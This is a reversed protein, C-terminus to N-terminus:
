VGSRFKVLFAVGLGLLLLISLGGGGGGTAVSQFVNNTDVSTVSDSNVSTASFDASANIAFSRKSVVFFINDSCRVRFRAAQVNPISTPIVVTALGNNAVRHALQHTFRKGNDVSLDIDVATCSIPALDTNAVEWSIASAVGQRYVAHPTELAFQKAQQMDKHVRIQMADNITVGQADQVVFQFNMIRNRTPLTEGVAQKAGLLSAMQPFIRQKSSSPLFTQFLANDGKDIHIASATGSDVQQWSYLLKSDDAAIVTGTLTFPTNAPIVYDAGADIVPAHHNDRLVEGCGAHLQNRKYERIQQISGIHFLPAITEQVNDNGCIGAYSMITSGSGPEYATSAVRNAALCLGSVGSFTHTAGFQHGIEHAVFALDFREGMQHGSVGMAKVNARCAGGVLAVGGGSATFLHGIDYNAEGITRSILQQNQKLLTNPNGSFPDTAADTFILQENNAVLEFHIAVDREYIHNIRNITSVIAALASAKTGGHQATYEGTASVALRYKHVAMDGILDAQQALKLQKTAVLNQAQAFLKNHVDGHATDHHALACQHKGTHKQHVLNNNSTNAWYSRYIGQGLSEVPDIYVMKGTATQLMARFGYPSLELRGSVTAQKVDDASFLKYTRINPFQQQLESSLTQVAQVSVAIYSGNPLPLELQYFPSQEAVQQLHYEMQEHNLQVLFANASKHTQISTVDTISHDSPLWAQWLESHAFLSSSLWFFCAFVVCSYYRMACCEAITLM